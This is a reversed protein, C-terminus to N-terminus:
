RVGFTWVEPWASIIRVQAGVGLLRKNAEVGSLSTTQAQM